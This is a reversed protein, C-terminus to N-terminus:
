IKAASEEAMSLLDAVRIKMEEASTGKLGGSGGKLMRAYVGEVICAMKWWSFTIYYDLNTVDFGSRQEYLKVMEDRRVFNEYLTPPRKYFTVTDDPDAWYMMSWCFDAIPDGLTCLEWDLVATLRYDSGMITNDFRYDGHALAIGNNEDPINKALRDHLADLLPLERVGGIEVQKKWRKLQREVYGGHKSLDALGTAELDIKHMAIQVDILSETAAFCQEVTMDACTEQHRLIIGEVFEMVYFPAENIADNECLAVMKPVPVGCDASDLAHMIRWERAMDHATAIRGGMPPRRLAWTSGQQDTVRFTLNSAGAAILEFRFPPECEAVHEVFWRTVSEKNIGKIDESM